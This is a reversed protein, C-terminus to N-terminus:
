RLCGCRTVLQPNTLWRLRLTHYRLGYGVTVYGSGVHTYGVVRVVLTFTWRLRAVLRTHTFRPTRLWGPTVVVTYRTPFTRLHRLRRLTHHLNYIFRTFRPLYGCTHLGTYSIWTRTYCGFTCFTDLHTVAYCRSAYHCVTRLRTFWCGDRLTHTYVYDLAVLGVRLGVLHTYHPFTCRPLRVCGHLTVLGVLRLVLRTWGCGCGVLTRYRRLGYVAFTYGAVYVYVYILGAHACVCVYVLTFRLRARLRSDHCGFTHRTTFTHYRFTVHTVTPCRAYGHTVLGLLTHDLTYVYGHGYLRLVTFVVCGRLFVAQGYGVDTRDWVTVTVYVTYVYGHLVYVDVYGANLLWGHLDVVYGYVHLTFRCRTVLLTVVLQTYGDLWVYDVTRTHHVCCVTTRLLTHTFTHAPLTVTWGVHLVCRTCGYGHLTVTFTHPAYGCGVHLRTVTFTFTILTFLTVLV